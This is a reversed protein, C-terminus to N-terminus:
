AISLISHKDDKCQYVCMWSFPMIVRSNAYVRLEFTIFWKIGDFLMMFYKIYDCVCAAHSFTYIYWGRKLIIHKRKERHSTLVNKWTFFTSYGNLNLMYLLLTYCRTIWWSPQKNATCSVKPQALNILPFMTVHILTVM